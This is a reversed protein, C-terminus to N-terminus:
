EFRFVINHRSTAPRDHALFLEALHAAIEYRSAHLGRFKLEAELPKLGHALGILLILGFLRSLILGYGLRHATSNYVAQPGLIQLQHVSLGVPRCAIALVM